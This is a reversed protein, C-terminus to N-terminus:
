IKIKKKKKPRRVKTQKKLYTFNEYISDKKKGDIKNM